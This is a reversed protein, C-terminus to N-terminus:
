IKIWEPKERKTYHLLNKKEALYYNRYAAVPDNNKYEEPMAQAFPTLPGATIIQNPAGRIISESAHIKGYRYTYEECLAIGLEKLWEFNARTKRTWLSCPHNQHTIRYGFDIGSLRVATSLLQATELILKIVHKDAHFKAAKSPELDLVFINM